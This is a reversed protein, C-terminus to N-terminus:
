LDGSTSMESDPAPNDVKIRPMRRQREAQFEEAILDFRQALEIDIRLSGHAIQARDVNQQVLSRRDGTRRPSRSIARGQNEKAESLIVIM